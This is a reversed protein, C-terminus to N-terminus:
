SVCTLDTWDSRDSFKEVNRFVHYSAYDGSGSNAISWGGVHPSYQNISGSVVEYRGTAMGNYEEGFKSKIIENGVFMLTHGVPHPDTLDQDDVIDSRILVDGPQLLTKDGGWDIQKWRPSALLYRLQNSTGAYEYDSDVGSWRIAVAVTRDCCRYFPDGPLISEFLHQWCSTGDNEYDEGPGWAFSVAAAAASSNDLNTLGSCSRLARFGSRDAGAAGSANAAAILSEAETLDYDVGEVWNAIQTLWNEASDGRVDDYPIGEWNKCFVEAAHRATKEDQWSALRNVYYDYDGNVSDVCFMLQLDLDYWEYQDFMDAYALLKRNRDNTWQGLGIGVYKIRPYDAHYKVYVSRRLIDGTYTVLGVDHGYGDSVGLRFDIPSDEIWIPEDDSDYGICERCFGKWIEYKRTGEAPAIFKEVFITEVGTPDIGSEHSWNGLIGAINTDALGYAKFFAYTKKANELTTGTPGIATTMYSTDDNCDNRGDDRTAIDADRVSAVGITVAVALGVALAGGAVATAVAGITSVVATVGAIVAHAIASFMAAIGGVAAQIAAMGMQLLLKLMLLMHAMSLAHMGAQALQAAQAIQRMRDLGSEKKKDEDKNEDDSESDSKKDSNKDTDEPKKGSKKSNSNKDGDKDDKGEKKEKDKQDLKDGVRSGIESGVKAGAEGGFYAGVAGGAAEGEAKKIRKDKVDKAVNLMADGSGGSGGSAGGPSGSSSPGGRPVSAGESPPQFKKAM